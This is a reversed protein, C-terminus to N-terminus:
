YFTSGAESKIKKSELIVPPPSQLWSVLLHKSRPLFAIVFRSLMNFLLSTVKGVFTWRDFSNNKWYDHICILTSGFSLQTGFFQHKQVITNSFVRSLGKIALVDFWDIRHSIFGSYENSPSLSFSFSLYKPWRLLLIVWHFLGQHQSLNLAPPSPSSLPNSPRITDGVWYVHTQTSEQLQHHVPLGPISRNMPDWLTLCSQIVSSFQVSPQNMKTYPLFWCLIAFCNDEM